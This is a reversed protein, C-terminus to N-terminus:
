QLAEWARKVALFHEPRRTNLKVDYKGDATVQIVAEFDSRGYGSEELALRYASLQLMHSDYIGKSTKLDFIGVGGPISRKKRPTPQLTFGDMEFLAKLDFRGAFGQEKSGVMLESEQPILYGKCDALFANLGRVYGQEEEPFDDPDAITGTVAWSELANHVSTGRVAAKDRVHNVTLKHETLKSIVHDTNELDVVDILKRDILDNVGIIGTKMGWWTLAPKHLIDLVTTVSPVEVGDIKYGRPDPCYEITYGAPVTSSVVSAGGATEGDGDAAVQTVPLKTASEGGASSTATLIEPVDPVSSAM